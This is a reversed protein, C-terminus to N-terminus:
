NRMFEDLYYRIGYITFYPRSDTEPDRPCTWKIRQWRQATHENMGTYERWLVAEGGDDVVICYGCYNGTQLFACGLKSREDFEQQKTIRAM